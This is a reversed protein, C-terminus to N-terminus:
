VKKVGLHVTELSSLQESDYQRKRLDAFEMLKLYLKNEENPQRDMDIPKNNLMDKM